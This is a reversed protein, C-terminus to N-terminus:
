QHTKSYLTPNEGQMSAWQHGEATTQEKTLNNDRLCIGWKGSETKNSFNM